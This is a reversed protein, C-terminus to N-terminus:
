FGALHIVCHTSRLATQWRESESFLSLCVDDIGPMQPRGPTQRSAAVVRWKHEALTRCLQAGVFGNSGTVFVGPGETAQVSASAEVQLPAGLGHSSVEAGSGDRAPHGLVNGVNESPIEFM